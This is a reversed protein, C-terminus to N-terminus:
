SRRRLAFGLLAGFGLAILLSKVPNEAILEDFRLKARRAKKVGTGLARRGKERLHSAAHAAEAVAVRGLERVDDIVKGSQASLRRTSGTRSSGSNREQEHKSM